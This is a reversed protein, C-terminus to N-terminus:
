TDIYAPMVVIQLKISPDHCACECVRLPHPQPHLPMDLSPRSIDGEQLWAGQTDTYPYLCTHISAHMFLPMYSYLCTHISADLRNSADVGNQDQYM